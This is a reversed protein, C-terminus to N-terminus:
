AVMWRDPGRVWESLHPPPPLTKIEGDSRMIQWGGGHVMWHHRYCLLLLNEKETRGGRIWHVLHHGECFSPPRDCGPWQCHRQEAALARRTPASIVRTARGVDIVTSDPGLLIRCISSDCAVQELWRSSIPLGWELEAGPAGPLGLLTELSATVQLHPRQGGQRPMWGTDMSHICLEVLADAMRWAKHRPDDAGSRRALPELAARVAAGGAADLLGSLFVYGDENPASIELERHLAKEKEDTECGEKAQQHRAHICLRIFQRITTKVGQRLLPVEDFEGDTVTSVARETRAMAALHGFGIGGVELAEVTLPLNAVSEGVAIRDAAAGSGMKLNQSMWQIASEGGESDYESSAAFEAAVRSFRLEMRDIERRMRVLQSALPPWGLNREFAEPVLEQLRSGGVGLM